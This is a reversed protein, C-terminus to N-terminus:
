EITNVAVYYKNNINVAIKEETSTEKISYIYGYSFITGDAEEIRKSIQAIEQKLSSYEVTEDTLTYIKKDIQITDQNETDLEVIPLTQNLLKNRDATEKLNFLVKLTGFALVLVIAIACWKLIKKNM